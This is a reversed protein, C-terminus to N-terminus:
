KTRLAPQVTLIYIGTLVLFRRFNEQTLISFISAYIGGFRRYTEVPGWPTGNWFVTNQATLRSFRYYSSHSRITQLAMQLFQTHHLFLPLNTSPQCVLNTKNSRWCFLKKTGLLGLRLLQWRLIWSQVKANRLQQDRLASESTTHRAWAQNVSAMGHESWATRIWAMAYYSRRFIAHTSRARKRSRGAVVRFEAFITILLM